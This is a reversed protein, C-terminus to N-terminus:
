AKFIFKKIAMIVISTLLIAAGFKVITTTDITHEMSTIPKGDKVRGLLGGVLTDEFPKNM